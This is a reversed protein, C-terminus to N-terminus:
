FTSHELNLPKNKTFRLSCMHIKLKISSPLNVKFAKANDDIEATLKDKGQLEKKYIILYGTVDV